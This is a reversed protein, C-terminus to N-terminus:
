ICCRISLRGTGTIMSTRSGQVTVGARRIAVRDHVGIFKQWLPPPRSLFYFKGRQILERILPTKDVYYCDSERLDAFDQYGTPLPQRIM